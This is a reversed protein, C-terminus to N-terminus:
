VENLKNPLNHKIIFNNRMKAAEVINESKGTYYSKGNIKVQGYWYKGCSHKMIGIYGSTNKHRMSMNQISQTTFRCNNPCYDVNNDIRDLTCKGRPVNEDYGNKLAWNEFNIYDDLWNECVKIGRAGYYKFSCNNPNYCRNLMDRYKRYLKTKSRNDIIMPIGLEM